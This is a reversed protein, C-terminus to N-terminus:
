KIKPIKPVKPIFGARPVSPLLGGKAMKPVPVGKGIETPGKPLTPKKPGKLKGLDFPADSTPKSSSSGGGPRLARSMPLMQGKGGKLLAM